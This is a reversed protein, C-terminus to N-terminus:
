FNLEVGLRIHRPTGLKTYSGNNLEYLANLAATQENVDYIEDGDGWLAEARRLLVCDVVGGTGGWDGCDGGLNIASLTEGDKSIEILRSGADQELRALEPNIFEDRHPGNTIEGTEAFIQVVNTFGLINRFDGFVTWDVPGVRFGKTLRLDFVKIWPMNSENIQEVANAELGFGQRPATQGNGQNRLRTFPLGSAFRFLGFVGLNELVDGYWNGQAFDSPFNFAFSGAITHRRNDNIPLIAQPPPVRENTVFSIQRATTNLFSFPDSGTSKADQFTYAVQGNFWDSIRRILSVDVGRVNGFDATTLVNVQTTDGTQPDFFPLIRYALDSLKDKNFAAVDLVMDQNFAHRIGFEFLISKSFGVDGGFTDNTNTFSLDNNKGSLMSNFNPSQAQHAYSLRFNTRDTVPFSVRVRPSVATHSQAQFLVGPQQDLPADPDFDPNSSIRGPVVPFLAGTDFHDWRLGLEVVVDGLDLRDQGYLAARKPEESYADNFIRRITGGNFFNVRGSQYEGGFKFRNFRDAQWDVNARGILRREQELTTVADIGTTPFGGTVAWPNLRFPQANQLETRNLFPVQTGTGRQVNRVLQDWDEQSNLSRVSNPGTDQSFDDYDIIFQM